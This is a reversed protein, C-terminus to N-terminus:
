SLERNESTSEVYYFSSMYFVFIERNNFQESDMKSFSFCMIEYYVWRLVLLLFLVFVAEYFFFSHVNLHPSTIFIHTHLKNQPVNEVM